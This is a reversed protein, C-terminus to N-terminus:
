GTLDRGIKALADGVLAQDEFLHGYRDFTMTISSHGMIQQIRKPPLGAEILLSACVHRLAHFHYKGTARETAGAGGNAARRQLRYWSQQICAQQVMRGRSGVFVLNLDNPPSALKWKKLEIMLHAAIPVDRISAYSKPVDIHGFNDAAVRVKIVGNDFDVNDWTLARLEGQRLGTFIATYLMPRLYRAVGGPGLCTGSLELFRKIEEKTPIEIKEPFRGPIRVDCDKLVNRGVLGRMQADKLILRLCSVANELTPRGRPKQPDYALQDVWTQVTRITLETLRISGIQPRIHNEVWSRFNRLTRPRLSDKARVREECRELWLDIAKSLSASSSDPVHEGNEIEVEVKTRYRDADKKKEFTKRRRKGSQDTYECVWATKTEGNSAWERKRVSAM